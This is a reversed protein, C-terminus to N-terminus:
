LVWFVWLMVLLSISLFVGLWIDGGSKAERRRAEDVRRHLDIQEDSYGQKRAQERARTKEEAQKRARNREEAIEADRRARSSLEDKLRRVRHKIYSRRIADRDAGGEEIARAQAARDMQGREIELFVREYIEDEQALEAQSKLAGRIGRFYGKM